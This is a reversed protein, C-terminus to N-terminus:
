KSAKVAAEALPLPFGMDTLNKTLEAVLAEKKAEEGPKGAANSEKKVEEKHGLESEGVGKCPTGYALNSSMLIEFLSSEQNIHEYDEDLDIASEEEVQDSMSKEKDGEEVFLGNFGFPDEYGEEKIEPEVEAAAEKEEVPVEIKQEKPVFGSFKKHRVYMHSENSGANGVREMNLMPLVEREKNQSPESHVQKKFNFGGALNLGL